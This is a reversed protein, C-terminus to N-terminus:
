RGEKVAPNLYLWSELAAWGAEWDGWYLFRAFFIFFLFRPPNRPGCKAPHASLQHRWELRLSRIILHLCLLSYFILANVNMLYKRFPFLPKQSIQIIRNHTIHIVHTWVLSKISLPSFFDVYQLKKGIRPSEQTFLVKWPRCLVSSRSISMKDFKKEKM